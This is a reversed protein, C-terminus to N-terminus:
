VDVTTKCRFVEGTYARFVLVGGDEIDGEFDCPFRRPERLVDDSGKGVAAWCYVVVLHAFWGEFFSSSRGERGRRRAWASPEGTVGGVGGLWNVGVKVGSGRPCKLDGGM